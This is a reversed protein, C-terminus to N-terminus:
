LDKTRLDERIVFVKRMCEVLDSDSDLSKGERLHAHFPCWLIHSQTDIDGCGSCKWLNRAHAKSSRQNMKVDTTQSRVRFLTRADILNMESIYFKTKFKELCMPEDKLKTMKQIKGKIMEEFNLHVAKKVMTKWQLKTVAISEDVINPLNFIRLLERGESVFGPFNYEKQACFIQKALTDEDLYVLYHLFLM